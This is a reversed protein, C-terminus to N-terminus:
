NNLKTNKIEEKLKNVKDLFDKLQGAILDKQQNIEEPTKLSEPRIEFLIEEKLKDGWTNLSNMMASYVMNAISILTANYVVKLWYIPWFIQNKVFKATTIPQIGKKSIHRYDIVYYIISSIGICITYIVIILELTKSM